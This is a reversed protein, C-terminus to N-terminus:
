NRSWTLKRELLDVYLDPDVLQIDQPPHSFATLGAQDSGSSAVGVRALMRGPVEGYGQASVGKM